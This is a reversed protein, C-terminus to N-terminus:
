SFAAQLLAQFLVESRAAQQRVIAKQEEIQGVIGAFKEQLALPPLSFSFHKLQNMNISAIGTTQKAAKLFYRKGYESSMLHSLYISHVLQRNPRVRFIHNQHICNMIEDNWVTGRGLKDPDGGETLLLDGRKLLYRQFDNKSVSISKIEKLDLHGDQVNAVRMYPVDIFNEGTIKSNKTIGSTIDAVESLYKKEYHKVLSDGFMEIFVSQVLKDYYGILQQDAQRLADAQDLVAAIYQQTALDASPSLFLKWGVEQSKHNPQGLQFLKEM